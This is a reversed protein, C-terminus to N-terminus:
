ASLDPKPLTLYPQPMLQTRGRRNGDQEESLRALQPLFSSPSIHSQALDPPARSSALSSLNTTAHWVFPPIVTPPFHIRLSPSTAPALLPLPTPPSQHHANHVASTRTTVIRRRPAPVNMMPSTTCCRCRPVRAPRYLVACRLMACCLVCLEVHRGSPLASCLLASCVLPDLRKKQLHGLPGCCWSCCFLSAQTTSRRDTVVLHPASQAVIKTGRPRRALSSGAGACACACLLRESTPQNNIWQSQLARNCPSFLPFVCDGDFDPILFTYSLAYSAASPLGPM